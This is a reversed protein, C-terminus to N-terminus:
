RKVSEIFLRSGNQEFGNPGIWSVKDPEPRADVECNLILRDGESPNLSENNAEAIRVKPAYFVTLQLHASVTDITNQANCRYEGSHRIEVNTLPWQPDLYTRGTGPHVWSYRTVKPNADANCNLDINRGEEVFLETLPGVSM